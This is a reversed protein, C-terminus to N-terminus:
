QCNHPHWFFVHDKIAVQIKLAEQETKAEALQKRLDVMKKCNM